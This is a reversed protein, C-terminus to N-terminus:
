PAIDYDYYNMLHSIYGEKTAEFFQFLLGGRM